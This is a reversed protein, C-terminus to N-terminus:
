KTAEEDARPTAEISRDAWSTMVGNCWTSAPMERGPGVLKVPGDPKGRSWMCVVQEGDKNMFVGEGEKLNNVYQGEYFTGDPWTYRGEGNMYNDHWRGTYTHGNRWTFIGHGDMNNNAWGGDYSSGDTWTLVGRGHRYGQKFQGTYVSKDDFTETGDGHKLDADWNGEYRSLRSVFVGHGQAKGDVWQGEYRDGSPYTFKGHGHRIEEGGEGERHDGVYKGGGSAEAAKRLKATSSRSLRSSPPGESSLGSRHSDQELRGKKSAVQTCAAGM